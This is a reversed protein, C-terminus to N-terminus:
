CPWFYLDISKGDEGVQAIYQWTKDDWDRIMKVMKVNELTGIVVHDTEPDDTFYVLEVKGEYYLAGLLLFPPLSFNDAYAVPVDTYVYKPLQGEHEHERLTSHFSVSLPAPYKPKSVPAPASIPEKKKFFGFLAM